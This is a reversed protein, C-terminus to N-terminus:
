SQPQPWPRAFASGSALWQLVTTAVGCNNVDQDANKKKKTHKTHKLEVCPLNLEVKCNVNYHM